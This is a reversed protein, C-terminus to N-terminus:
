LVREVLHGDPVEGEGPRFAVADEAADGLPEGVEVIFGEAAARLEREKVALVAVPEALSDEERAAVGEETSTPVENAEVEPIAAEPLPSPAESKEVLSAVEL